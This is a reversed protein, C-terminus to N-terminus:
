KIGYEDALAQRTKESIWAGIVQHPALTSLSDCFYSESVIECGDFDDPNCERLGAVISAQLFTKM